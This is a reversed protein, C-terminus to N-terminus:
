LLWNIGYYGALAFGTVKIIKGAVVLLLFRWVPYRTAGAWLSMIEFPGPLIALTFLSPGCWRRAISLLRRYIRGGHIVRGTRAGLMYSTIEGLGAGIGGALGILMPNLVISMGITYAQVPLPILPIASNTLEVIFAGLYGWSGLHAFAGRFYVLVTCVAISLCFAIILTPSLLARKLSATQTQRALFWRYNPHGILPEVCPWARVRSPREFAYEWPKIAELM